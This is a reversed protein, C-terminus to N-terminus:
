IARGDGSGQQARYSEIVEPHKGEKCERVFTDASASDPFTMYALAGQCVADINIKGQAGTSTPAATSADTVSTITFIGRMNYKAWESSSLAEKIVIHGEATIRAGAQFQMMADASAGFNVAYYVGDDTKFGFACEETQPGTTDLHPLCGYVGTLTVPKSTGDVVVPVPASVDKNMNKHSYHGAATVILLALVVYVAYIPKM